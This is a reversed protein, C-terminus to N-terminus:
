RKGKVKKVSVWKLDAYRRMMRMMHLASKKKRFGFKNHDDEGYSAYVRWPM